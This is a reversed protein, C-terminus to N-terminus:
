QAKPLKRHLYIAYTVTIFLVAASLMLQQPGTLVEEKAFVGIANNISHAAICPILSGGRDFILVFLFGCAVAGVVQCLNAVIEMGSGNFLNLLHGLGFTVSSIVVAMKVNERALARFLFGRFIVEELFGVCLMTGVYCVAYGAPRDFSVGFWLNHSVFLALPLYWLFNKAPLAMRCLGYYRLLGSKVMWLLLFATLLGNIILHAGYEVGIAASIPNAASNLLCYIGIWTLAFALHSKKYLRNMWGFMEM